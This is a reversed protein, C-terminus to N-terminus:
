SEDKAGKLKLKRQESKRQWFGTAKKPKLDKDDIQGCCNCDKKKKM